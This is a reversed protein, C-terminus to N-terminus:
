QYIYGFCCPCSCFHEYFKAFKSVYMRYLQYLVVFNKNSVSLACQVIQVTIM